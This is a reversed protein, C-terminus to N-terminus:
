VLDSVESSKDVPLRASSPIRAVYKPAKARGDVIAKSESKVFVDVPQASGNAGLFDVFANQVADEADASNGVIARAQKLFYDRKQVYMWAAFDDSVINV